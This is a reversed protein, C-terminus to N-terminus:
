QDAQGASEDWGFHRRAYGTMMDPSWPPEWVLNLEIEADKPALAKLTARADELIMDSMPCAPTTMTIDVQLKGEAVIVKYVLGLEVINMGVEPDIVGRLVSRVDEETPMSNNM